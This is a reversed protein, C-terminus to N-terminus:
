RWTRPPLQEKNTLFREYLERLVPNGYNHDMPTPSRGMHYDIYMDSQALEFGVLAAYRVADNTRRYATKVSEYVPLQSKLGRHFGYRFGTWEDAYHAHNGIVGVGTPQRQSAVDRDCKLTLTQHKFTVNPGYFALGASLPSNTFYDHTQPDVWANPHIARLVTNLATPFLVVDADVKGRIVDPAAENFTQYVANHADVEIMDHFTKVEIEHDGQQDAIAQICHVYDLEGCCM